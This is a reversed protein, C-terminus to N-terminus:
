KKLSLIYAIIGNTQDATLILNPMSRHSTHLFVNLATATMGPTSAIAAFSPSNSNPSRPDGRRVAHCEACVQRALVRGTRLDGVEQAQANQAALMVAIVALSSRAFHMTM